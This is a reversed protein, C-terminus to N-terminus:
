AAHDRRGTEQGTIQRDPRRGDRDGKGEARGQQQMQEFAPLQLEGAKALPLGTTLPQAYGEPPTGKWFAV